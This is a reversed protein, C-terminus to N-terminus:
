VRVVVGGVVFGVVGVEGGVVFGVVGGAVLGVV